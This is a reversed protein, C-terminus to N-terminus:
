VMRSGGFYALVANDKCTRSMKWTTGDVTLSGGRRDISVSDIEAERALDTFKDFDALPFTTVGQRADERSAWVFNHELLTLVADDVTM